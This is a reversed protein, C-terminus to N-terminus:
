EHFRRDTHDPVKTAACLWSSLALIFLTFLGFALAIKGLFLYFPIAGTM